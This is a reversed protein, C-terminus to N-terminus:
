GTVLDTDSEPNEQGHTGEERQRDEDVECGSGRGETRSQRGLGRGNGLPPTINKGQGM